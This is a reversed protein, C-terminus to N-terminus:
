LKRRHSSLKMKCYIFAEKPEKRRRATIGSYHQTDGRRPLCLRSLLNQRFVHSTSVILLLRVNRNRLALLDAATGQQWSVCQEVDKVNKLWSSHYVCGLAKIHNLEGELPSFAKLTQSVGKILGLWKLPMALPSCGENFEALTMIRFSIWHLILWYSCM